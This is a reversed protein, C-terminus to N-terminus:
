VGRILRHGREPIIQALDSQSGVGRILAAFGIRCFIQDIKMKRLVAAVAKAGLSSIFWGIVIILLFAILKVLGRLMMGLIGYLSAVFSQWWTPQVVTTTQM